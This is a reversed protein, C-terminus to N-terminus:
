GLLLPGGATWLVRVRDGPEARMGTPIRCETSEGTAPDLVGITEGERFTVLCEAAERVNGILTEVKREPVSRVPGEPIDSVKLDRGDTSQVEAYRGHIAVIDGRTYKPLRVLYTIRYLRKGAREGVLKPHTTSRGGIARVLATSIEQGIRQSGITIDLGDRTEEMESIFSLREGSAAMADEIERAIRGAQQIERPSPKRGTARVQVVGEYYSGSMRSCRDCQEKQWIIEVQCSGQVPEGFLTGSVCCDAVSRNSSKEYLAISVEPNIVEPIVSVSRRVLGYGAEERSISSEVWLGAEKRCGCSPCFTSVV